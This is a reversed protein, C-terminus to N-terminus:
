DTVGHGLHHDVKITFHPAGTGVADEATVDPHATITKQETAAKAWPPQDKKVFTAEAINRLGINTEVEFGFKRQLLRSVAANGASRQLRTLMEPALEPRRPEDRADDVTRRLARAARHSM